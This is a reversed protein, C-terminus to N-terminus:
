AAAGLAERLCAELAACSADWGFASTRARLALADPPAACLRELRQALLEPDRADVLSDELGELLEGTGGAATALVSRGCALAELVVNPRGERRSTLLLVDCAGYWDVLAEPAVEGAFAVRAELGLRRTEARLAGELPGRGVFALRAAPAREAFRAFAALALEPDKREILHGVVLVLLGAPALGLRARCAGRERLHFTRTDVGNPVLRGRGPAGGLEDMRALLDRSVAAWRGARRLAAGLHEGLGAEGAVQLVDSGRGHVVFPVGAAALADAALAMPWAYDAIAVEPRGGALLARVGCAAARRANALHRGPLHLYRPHAIELGELTERAGVHALERWARPGLHGPAWPLPHVVHLAHGRRRMHQWRRLAFVGEQPRTSLPLLTTLVGIRM